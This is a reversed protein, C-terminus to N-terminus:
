RSEIGAVSPHDARRDTGFWRFFVALAAIAMTAKGLIMLVAGAVTQDIVPTLSPILRPAHTYFDYFPARSFIFALAVGDQPLTALLMYLLKAGPSLQWRAHASTAALMPWYLVLGSAIFTLHEVVHLPEFKLTADYLAPVHWGVMVLAAIVQAPLPETIARVGPVRVIRDLMQPSLGLLM